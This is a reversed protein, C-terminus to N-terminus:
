RIVFLIFNIYFKEMCIHFKEIFKKYNTFKWLNKIADKINKAFFDEASIMILVTKEEEEKLTLLYRDKSFLESSFNTIGRKTKIDKSYKEINDDKSLIIEFIRVSSKKDTRYISFVTNGCREEISYVLDTIYFRYFIDGALILFFAAVPALIMSNSGTLSFTLAFIGLLICLSGLLLAKKNNRKKRYRIDM